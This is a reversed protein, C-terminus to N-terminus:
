AQAQALDAVHGVTKNIHESQSRVVSTAQVLNSAAVKVKPSIDEVLNRATSLTPVLHQKLQDSLLHVEDTTKRVVLYMGLMVCAQILVAISTVATFIILVTQLTQM